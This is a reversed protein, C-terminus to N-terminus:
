IRGGNLNTYSEMLIEVRPAIEKNTETIMFAEKCLEEEYSTLAKIQKTTDQYEKDINKMLIAINQMEVWEDINDTSERVIGKDYLVDFVKDEIEILTNNLNRYYDENNKNKLYRNYQTQLHDANKTSLNSYQFNLYNTNHFHKIKTSNLLKSAKIQMNENLELEYEIRRKLFLIGFTFILAVSTIVSTPIMIDQRLTQMMTLLMISTIGLIIILSYAIIKLANYGSILSERYEFLSEKEEQLYLIDSYTQRQKNETQRIEKILDPIEDERTQIIRLAPNNRILRGELRKRQEMVSKYQDLFGAVKEHDEKTLSEYKQLDKKRQTLGEAYRTLRKRKVTTDKLEIFIEEIRNSDNIEEISPRPETKKNFLSFLKKIKM